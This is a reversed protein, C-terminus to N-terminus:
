RFLSVVGTLVDEILQGNPSTKYAIQYTYKGVPAEQGKYSGDWPETISNTHFVLLGWSNYVRMEFAQLGCDSIISFGDNSDDGNPSFANPVNVVPLREIIEAGEMTFTCGNADTVTVSYIGAPLGEILQQDQPPATNWRYFYPATGGSALVLISGTSEGPCSPNDVTTATLPEPEAIQYGIIFECDNADLVRLSYSGATQGSLVDASSLNMGNWEFRYPETGGWVLATAEGDSGNHCSVDMVDVSVMLPVPQTIEYERIEECGAADTITLSYNGAELDTLVNGGAGQLGNSWTFNYPARGGQVELSILGDNGNACSVDSITPVVIIEPMVDVVLVPSDGTCDSIGPNTEKFYISKMQSDNWDVQVSNGRNGGVFDGGSVFWEYESGNTLPTSYTIGSRDTYCISVPGQPMAPKLRNDVRVPLELTESSCGEESTVVLSVRDNPTGGGWDVTISEGTRDGTITGGVVTWEYNAAEVVEATYDIGTVGPCVSVPGSISVVEPKRVEITRTITESTSCVGTGDSAELVIEYNGPQAYTHEIMDGDLITGDGLDWTFKTFRPPQDPDTEFLPSLTITSSYCSVEDVIDIQSDRAQIRLNFNQLSVGASYGFSEINGFGYVYAIIGDPATIRHNGQSIEILAYANEGEVTFQDGVSVGDLQIRDLQDNRSILTLYYQDIEFAQFARFTVDKIRQEMPSLMIMFPDGSQNDCDQSRAYQAMSIPKNATVSRAGTLAMSITKVEGANLTIPSLGQVNVVTNDDKAGVKLMDGGLRSAYPVYLFEQGWTSTPFMQEYLHDANAGCEGVFTMVAGGFVAFNKCDAESGSIATVQTGSLDFLSMMHYTEGRSLNIAFPVNAKKGDILDQSPTIRILTEDASAVILATSELGYTEKHSFVLYDNGLAATPLIVAADASLARKNLAYVSIDVDSTIHIGRATRGMGVPMFDDVSMEIRTTQGVQVTFTNSYGALPAEVTVTATQNASFSLQLVAPAEPPNHINQMFGMWFDKGETTTQASLSWGYGIVLLIFCVVRKM